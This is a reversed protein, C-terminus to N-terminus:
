YHIQPPKLAKWNGADMIAILRWLVDSDSWVFVPLSHRWKFAFFVDGAFNGSVCKAYFGTQHCHWWSGDDVVPLRSPLFVYRCVAEDLDDASGFTEVRPQYM